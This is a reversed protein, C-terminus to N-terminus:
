TYNQKMIIRMNEITQPFYIYKFYKQIEIPQILKLLDM